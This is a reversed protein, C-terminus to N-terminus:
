GRCLSRSNGRFSNKIAIYSYPAHFLIVDMYSLKRFRCINNNLWALTKFYRISIRGQVMRVMTELIDTRMLIMDRYEASDGIVNSFFWM